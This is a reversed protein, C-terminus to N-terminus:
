CCTSYNFFQTCDLQNNERLLESVRGIIDHVLEIDEAAYLHTYDVTKKRYFQGVPDAYVCGLRKQDLGLVDLWTSVERIPDKVLMDFCTVTLDGRFSFLTTIRQIVTLM